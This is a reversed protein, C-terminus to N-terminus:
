AKRDSPMRTTQGLVVDAMVSTSRTAVREGREFM